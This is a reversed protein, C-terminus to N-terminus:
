KRGTELRNTDRHVKLREEGRFVPTWVYCRQPVAVDWTRFGKCVWGASALCTGARSPRDRAEPQTQPTKPRGKKGQRSWRPSVRFPEQRAQTAVSVSERPMSNQRTWPTSVLPTRIKGPRPTVILRRRWHITITTTTRKKAETDKQKAKIVRDEQRKKTDTKIMVQHTELRKLRTMVVRQSM